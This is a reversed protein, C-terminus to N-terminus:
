GEFDFHLHWGGICGGDIVMLGSLFNRLKIRTMFFHYLATTFFFFNGTPERM